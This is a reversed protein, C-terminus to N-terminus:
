WPEHVIDKKRILRYGLQELLHLERASAVISIGDRFHDDVDFGQDLLALAESAVPRSDRPRIDVRFRRWADPEIPPLPQETFDVPPPMLNPMLDAPVEYSQRKELIGPIDLGTAGTAALGLGRLAGVAEQASLLAQSIPPQFETGCELDFGYIRHAFFFYEDSTGAHNSTSGTSYRTGKVTTIQRNMAAELNAYTAEDESGVPLHPIYTGGSASPRFIAEGSSHSDIAFLIRRDREVLIAINATEPESLARPGRYIETCPDASSGAEGFYTPYNRNCDVGFCTGAEPRLNKRWMRRGADFFSALAGDPNGEPVITFVVKDLLRVTEQVLLDNDSRRYNEVFQLLAEVIAIGNIWERAHPSRMFLVAPKIDQNGPSSVHLAFMRQRGRVDHREGWYGHTEYPLIELTCLDPFRQTIEDIRERVELPNLYQDVFGRRFGM